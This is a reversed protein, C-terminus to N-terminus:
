RPRRVRRQPSHARNRCRSLGVSHCGALSEAADEAMMMALVAESLDPSDVAAPASERDVASRLTRGRRWDRVRFVIGAIFLAVGILVFVLRAVILGALLSTVLSQWAAADGGVVLLSILRGVHVRWSARAAGGYSM